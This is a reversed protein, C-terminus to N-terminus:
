TAVYAVAPLLSVRPVSVYPCFIALVTFMFLGNLMLVALATTTPLIDLPAIVAVAIALLAIVSALNAVSANVLLTIAASAIVLASNAGEALVSIASATQAYAVLFIVPPVIVVTLSLVPYLKDPECVNSTVPM